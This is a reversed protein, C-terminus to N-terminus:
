GRAGTLRGGDVFITHGTIFDSARSALFVAPGILDEVKGIRRLPITSIISNYVQKDKLAEENMETEIYGPGLANVQINYRGWERALSKTLSIVGAKSAAYAAMKSEGIVGGVSSVNIIKGSGREIMVKAAAQAWFFVAKLNVDLVRDWEQESVQRAAGISTLGANNILVDLGGLVQVAEAIVEEAKKISRVDAAFALARRGLIKIQREVEKCQELRRSVIAVDAGASALGLALARGIGQSGGTVLAVRGTLDFNELGM